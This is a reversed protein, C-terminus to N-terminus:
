VRETASESSTSASMGGLFYSLSQEDEEAVALMMNRGSNISM